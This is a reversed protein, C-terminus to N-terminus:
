TFVGAATAPKQSFILALDKDGNKKLGCSVGAAQIGGTVCIGGPIKELKYDM